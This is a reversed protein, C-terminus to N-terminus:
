KNNESAYYAVALDTVLGYSKVGAKVKQSTLYANNTTSVVKAATSERYKDFFRSYASM